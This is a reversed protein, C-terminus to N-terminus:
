RSLVVGRTQIPNLPHTAEMKSQNKDQQLGCPQTSEIGRVPSSSSTAFVQHPHVGHKLEVGIAHLSSFIVLCAHTLSRKIKKFSTSDLNNKDPM